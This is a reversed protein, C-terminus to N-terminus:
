GWGVASFLRAPRKPRPRPTLPEPRGVAGECDPHERWALSGKPATFGGGWSACTVASAPLSQSSSAQPRRCGAGRVAGHAPRWAGGPGVVRRPATRLRPRLGRARSGVGPEPEWPRHRDALVLGAGLGPVVLEFRLPGSPVAGWAPLGPGAWRESEGSGLFQSCGPRSHRWCM